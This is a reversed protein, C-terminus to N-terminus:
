VRRIEIGREAFPAVAKDSARTDTIAMNIDSVPCVLAPSVIGLKTSDAVVIKTKAQHIMARFTLSEEPEIVTVGRGVDIGCVSIFVKDLYINNLFQHRGPRRSLVIRGM